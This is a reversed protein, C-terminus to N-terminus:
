KSKSALYADLDVAESEGPEIGLQGYLRELTNVMQIYTGGPEVGTNLGNVEASEVALELYAIRRCRELTAADGGDVQRFLKEARRKLRKVVARRNDLEDYKFAPYAPVCLRTKGMRSAKTPM